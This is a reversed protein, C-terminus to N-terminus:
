EGGDSSRPSKMSQIHLFEKRIDPALHFITNGNWGEINHYQRYKESYQKIGEAAGNCGDILDGLPRDRQVLKLANLNQDYNLHNWTLLFQTSGDQLHDELECPELIWEPTKGLSAYVYARSLLSASLPTDHLTAIHEIVADRKVLDRVEILYSSTTAVHM